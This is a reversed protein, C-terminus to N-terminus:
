GAAQAPTAAALKPGEAAEPKRSKGEELRRLQGEIHAGAEIALVEHVIDGIVKATKALKVSRATVKGNIQGHVVVDEAVLEGSIRAHSGITLSQAAVDGEITGDVQIEGETKLSGVIHLNTSIISPAARAGTPSTAPRAMEQGKNETSKSFM